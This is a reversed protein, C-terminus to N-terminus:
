YRCSYKEIMFEPHLAQKAQRLAQNGMDEERNLYTVDGWLQQACDKCIATYLGRIAPNAKEVHLVATDENIKSGYSFAQIRGDIRILGGRLGLATFNSLARFIALREEGISPDHIARWDCWAYAFSLCEHLSDATIPEFVYNPQERVFANYHNKQGHLKRGSLTALKERLYVYDWNDRDTEFVLGPLAQELREKARQGIGHLAFSQGEYAKVAELVQPLEETRGGLPPLFFDVGGRKVRM